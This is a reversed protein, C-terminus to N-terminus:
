LQCPRPPPLLGAGRPPARRASCGPRCCSGPSGRVGSRPGREARGPVGARRLSAEWGRRLGQAAAAWRVENEILEEARPDSHSLRPIPRTEFSYRRFQSDSWGPGAGAASSSAAAM